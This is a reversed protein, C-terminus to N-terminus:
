ENPFVVVSTGSSPILHSVESRSVCDDPEEVKPRPNECPFNVVMLMCQVTKGCFICWLFSAENERIVLRLRPKPLIWLISTESLQAANRDTLM